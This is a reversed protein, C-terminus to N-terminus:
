FSLLNAAKTSLLPWHQYIEVWLWALLTSLAVIAIVGFFDILWSPEFIEKVKKEFNLQENKDTIEQTALERESYNKQLDIHISDLSSEIILARLKLENILDIQIELFSSLQYQTFFFLSAGFGFFIMKTPWSFESLWVGAISLSVYFVQLILAGM